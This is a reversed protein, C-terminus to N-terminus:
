SPNGPPEPKDSPELPLPTESLSASVLMMVALMQLHIFVLGAFTALAWGIISMTKPDTSQFRTAAFFVGGFLIMLAGIMFLVGFAVKAGKPMPDIKAKIQLSRRSYWVGWAVWIAFSILGLGLM